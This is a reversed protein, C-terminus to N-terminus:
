GVKKPWDDMEAMKKKFSERLDEIRNQHAQIMMERCISFLFCASILLLSLYIFLVISTKDVEKDLEHRFQAKVYHMIWM